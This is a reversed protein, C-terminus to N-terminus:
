AISLLPSLSTHLQPGLARRFCHKTLWGGLNDGTTRAELWTHGGMLAPDFLFTFTIHSEQPWIMAPMAAEAKDRLQWLSSEMLGPPSNLDGQHRGGLALVLRVAM